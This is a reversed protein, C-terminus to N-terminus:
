GLAVLRWMVIHPGIDPDLWEEAYTTFGARRYLGTAPVRANCWLLGGGQSAVYAIATQLVASGIGQHRADPQTAMGRLRWESTGAPALDDIPFPAEELTVQAVSLVAGEPDVAALAVTSPDDDGPLAVEELTQHPRLVARRLALTEGVKVQTVSFALSGDTTPGDAEDGDLGRPTM